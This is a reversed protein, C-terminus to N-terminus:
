IKPTQGTISVTDNLCGVPTQTEAKNKLELLKYEIKYLEELRKEIKSDRKYPPYKDHLEHIDKQVGKLTYEGM